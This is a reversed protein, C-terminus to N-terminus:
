ATPKLPENLDMALRVLQAVSDAQMKQMVRSRHVEVTKEGIGLRLAIQKNALGQVVLGMVEREKPTLSQARQHVAGRRSIEERALVDRRIAERVKTVLDNCNVPKQIFEMAGQKMADVATPIDASGSIFLIPIVAAISRLQRQLDIGSMGPMQVDL